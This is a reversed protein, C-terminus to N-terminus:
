RRNIKKLSVNELRLIEIEHTLEKCRESLKELESKLDNFTRKYFDVVAGLNDIEMKDVEAKTKKRGIWHGTFYTVLGSVPIALLKLVEIM